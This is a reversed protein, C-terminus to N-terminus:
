KQKRLENKFASSITNRDFNDLFGTIKRLEILAEGETYGCRCLDASAKFLKPNWEGNPAGYMLFYRTSTYLRAPNKFTSRPEPTLNDWLEEEPAGRDILWHNLATNSVRSNVALLKQENGTDLRVHGPFRSFRSPNKCSHDVKDDGVAKYVRKVLARYLQEDALPYELSIIYHISKSGSYVATSYPMGIESIHQSQKELSIKDMEVLINRYSIVSSDARTKSPDMPNISFFAESGSRRILSHNLSYIQIGKPTESFCTSDEKDFLLHLFNSIEVTEQAQAFSSM